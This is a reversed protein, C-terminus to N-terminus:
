AHPYRSMSRHNGFVHCRGDKAEARHLQVSMESCSFVRSEPEVGQTRLWSPLAAVTLNVAALRSEPHATTAAELAAALVARRGAMVRNTVVGVSIRCWPWQRTLLGYNGIHAALNPYRGHREIELAVMLPVEDTAFGVLADPLIWRTTSGTLRTRRALRIVGVIDPAVTAMRLVARLVLQDHQQDQLKPRRPLPEHVTRAVARLARQGHETCTWRKPAPRGPRLLQHRQWDALVMRVDAEHVLRGWAKATALVQSVADAATVPSTAAGLILALARRTVERTSASWDPAHGAFRGFADRGQATVLLPRPPRGRGHEAALWGAARLRRLQRKVEDLSSVPPTRGLLDLLDDELWGVECIAWWLPRWAAAITPPSRPALLGIRRATRAAQGPCLAPEVFQM